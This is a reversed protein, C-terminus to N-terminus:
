AMNLKFEEVIDTIDGGKPQNRILDSIREFAIVDAGESRKGWTSIYTTGGDVSCIIKDTIRNYLYDMGGESLEHDDHGAAKAEVANICTRGIRYLVCSSDYIRGFHKYGDVPRVWYAFEVQVSARRADKAAAEERIAEGLELKLQQVRTYATM